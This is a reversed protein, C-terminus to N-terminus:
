DFYGCNPAIEFDQIDKLKLLSIDKVTYEEIGSYSKFIFFGSQTKSNINKKGFPTSIKTCLPESSEVKVKIKSDFDKDFKKEDVIVQVKVDKSYKKSFEDQIVKQVDKKVSKIKENWQSVKPDQLFKDLLTIDKNKPELAYNFAEYYEKPVIKVTIKRIEISPKDEGAEFQFKFSEGPAVFFKEKKSSYKNKSVLKSYNGSQSSWAGYSYKEYQSYKGLWGMDLAIQYYEQSNNTVKYIAKYGYIDTKYGGSSYSSEKYKTSTYAKGNIYTTDTSPTSYSTSTYPVYRKGIKGNKFTKKIDLKTQKILAAIKEKNVSSDEASLLKELSNSYTKITGMQKYLKIVQNDINWKKVYGDDSFTYLSDGIVRVRNIWSSHKIDGIIEKYNNKIDWIKVTADKSASYLIDNKIVLDVVYNSHSGVVNLLKLSSADYAYIKKNDSAVFLKGKYYLIKRIRKDAVTVKKISTHTKKDLKYLMGTSSGFYISKDDIYLATHLHNAKVSKYPKYSNANMIYIEKYGAFYIKNENMFVTQLKNSKTPISKLLKHTKYNYIYGKNKFTAVALKDKGFAKIESINRNNKIRFSTVKKFTQKDILTILGKNNGTIIYKDTIDVAQQYSAIYLEKFEKKKIEKLQKDLEKYKSNLTLLKKKLEDQLNYKIVEIATLTSAEFNEGNIKKIFENRKSDYNAEKKVPFEKFEFSKVNFTEYKSDNECGLFLLIISLVVSWKVIYNM